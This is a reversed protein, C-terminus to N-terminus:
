WHDRMWDFTLVLGGLLNWFEEPTPGFYGCNSGATRFELTDVTAKNIWM